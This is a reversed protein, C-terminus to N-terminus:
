EAESKGGTFRYQLWEAPDGSTGKATGYPMDKVFYNYAKKYLSPFKYVRVGRAVEDLQEREKDSLQAEFDAPVNQAERLVAKNVDFMLSEKPEKVDDMARLDIEEKGDEEDGLMDGFEDDGGEEDDGFGGFDGFGDFSSDPAPAADEAEDGYAAKQGDTTLQGDATALNQNVLVENGLDTIHAGENDIDILGLKDLMDRAAVLNPTDSIDAAALQPTAAAVIKALVAKQNDTPRTIPLIEKETIRM